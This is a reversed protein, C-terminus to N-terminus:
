DIVQLKGHYVRNEQSLKVFYLGPELQFYFHPQPYYKTKHNLVLQGNQDFVQLNYHVGSKLPYISVRDRAPNPFLQLEPNEYDPESFSSKGQHDTEFILNGSGGPDAYRIFGLLQNSGEKLHSPGLLRYNNLLSTYVPQPWHNSRYIIKDDAGLLCLQFGFSQEIEPHVQSPNRAINYTVLLKDAEFKQFEIQPLRYLSDFARYIGPVELSFRRTTDGEFNSLCIEVQYHLNDKFGLNKLTYATFEEQDASISVRHRTNALSQIGTFKNQILDYKLYRNIWEGQHYFGFRFIQEEANGSIRSVQELSDVPHFKRLDEEISALTWQDEFEGTTINLFGFDDEKRLFLSGYAFSNPNVSQYNNDWKPNPDFYQWQLQHERHYSAIHVTPWTKYQIIYNGSEDWVIGSEWHNAAHLSDNPLYEDYLLNGSYDYVQHLYNQGPENELRYVGFLAHIGDKLFQHQIFEVKQYSSFSEQKLDPVFAFWNQASLGFPFLLILVLRLHM